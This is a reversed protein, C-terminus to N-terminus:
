LVNSKIGSIIMYSVFILMLGLLLAYWSFDIFIAKNGNIKESNTISYKM